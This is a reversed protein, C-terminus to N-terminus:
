ILVVMQISSWEAILCNQGNSYWVPETNLDESHKSGVQMGFQYALECIGTMSM